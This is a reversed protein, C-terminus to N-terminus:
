PLHLLPDSHLVLDKVDSTAHIYTCLIWYVPHQLDDLVM